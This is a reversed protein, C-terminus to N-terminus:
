RGRAIFTNGHSAKMIHQGLGYLGTGLCFSMFFVLFITPIDRM